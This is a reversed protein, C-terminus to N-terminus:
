PEPNVRPVMCGVYDYIGFYGPRLTYFHCYQGTVIGFTVQLHPPNTPFVLDTHPEEIRVFGGDLPGAVLEVDTPDM